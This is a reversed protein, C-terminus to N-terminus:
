SPSTDDGLLPQWLEEPHPLPHQDVELAPNSTFKYDGCLRFTGYQKPVPIIPAAWDSYEVKELIGKVELRDIERGVADKIAFPVSRPRLFHSRSSWVEQFWPKVHLKAQFPTM